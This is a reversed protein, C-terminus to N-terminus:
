WRTAWSARRFPRAKPQEMVSATPAPAPASSPTQTQAPAPAPTAAAAKVEAKRAKRAARRTEKTDDAADARVGLTSLLAAAGAVTDGMENRGRTKWVAQAKGNKEVIGELEDASAEEAFTAHSVRGTAKFLSVSGPMGVPILWGRQTIMHWAHSDWQMMQENDPPVFRIDALHGRRKISQRRWPEKYQTSGFGKAAYVPPPNHRAMLLKCAAHVTSAWKAGCDIAMASLSRGYPAALLQGVVSECARYIAVELAHKSSDRGGWLPKSKGPTWWGYDVVSYCPANTASLVCWAAAHYNLDIFAVTGAADDPIAGRELVGVAKRVDAATLTYEAEPKDSKPDQQKESAFALAGMKYFSLMAGCFADPIKKTLKFASPASLAMGATMAAKNSEYFENSGEGAEHLNFWERWLDQTPGEGDDWGVPWSEVCAVRLSKWQDSALYYAMVDDRAVCNGSMLMALNEGVAGMGAIDNDIIRITEAVQLPSNAVERDQVDDLLALTPRLVKGDTTSHNLGRPNGNITAGGICGRNDPLVIIGEGVALGAGCSKGHNPGGDWVASAIRQSVGKSHQFPACIEPYDDSLRDNFCLAMKWFRFARKLAKVDWPLCVPFPQVGTMALMLVIGWLETSKGIGREGAVAFRGGTKSAHLAGDLIAVHLKEFPRSFAEPM